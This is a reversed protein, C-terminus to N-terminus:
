RRPATNVKWSSSEGQDKRGAHRLTDAPPLNLNQPTELPEVPGLLEIPDMSTLALRQPDKPKMRLSRRHIYFSFVPEADEEVRSRGFVVM